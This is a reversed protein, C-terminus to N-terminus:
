EFHQSDTMKKQKTNQAKVVRKKIERESKRRDAEEARKRKNEEQQKQYDIMFKANDYEKQGEPTSTDITSLTPPVYVFDKFSLPTDKVTAPVKPKRTLAPGKGKRRTNKRGVTSVVLTKDIGTENVSTFHQSEPPPMSPPLGPGPNYSLESSDILETIVIPRRVRPPPAFTPNGMDLGAPLDPTDSVPTDEVVESAEVEVELEADYNVVVKTIFDVLYNGYDALISSQLDYTPGLKDQLDLCNLISRAGRGLRDLINQPLLDERCFDNESAGLDTFIYDRAVKLKEAAYAALGESTSLKDTNRKEMLERQLKDAVDQIYACTDEYRITKDMTFGHVTGGLMAVWNRYRAIADQRLKQQHDSLPVVQPRRRKRSTAGATSEPEEPQPADSKPEIARDYPQREPFFCNDCRCGQIIYTDPDEFVALIAATRCGYTNIVWCIAPDLVALGEGRGKEKDYMSNVFQDVEARNDLCVNMKYEAYRPNANQAEVVDWPLIYKDDAFIIALGQITQDRACRGLRQYLDALSLTGKSVSLRYQVVIKVDPIDMGMGAADTCVLIRTNGKRFNEMIVNRTGIEIAATYVTILEVRKELSFRDQPLRSRLYNAIAQASNRNDVFVMSKPLDFDFLNSGVHSDILFDLDLWKGKPACVKACVISVNRRRISRQTLATPRALKLSHHLYARVDRTLTASLILFPVALYSRIDGLNKYDPRFGTAGWKFIVHGEDIVIGALRKIFINDPQNIIKKWFYSSPKLIQEPSVFVARYKGREVKEWLHHDSMLAESTIGVASIGKREFSAVQEEILGLIPSIVIMTKRAIGMLLQFVTSKGDGTRAIVVQDQKFNLTVSAAKIQWDHPQYKLTAIGWDNLIRHTKEMKPNEFKADEIPLWRSRDGILNSALPVPPLLQRESHEM